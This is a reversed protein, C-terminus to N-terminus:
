TRAQLQRLLVTRATAIGKYIAIEEPMTTMTRIFGSRTEPDTLAASLPHVTLQILFLVGGSAPLACFAQHEVRLWVRDLSADPGIRPLGRHPHMNMEPVAALGWNEREFVAGPPLRALFTRIRAGLEINVTPV